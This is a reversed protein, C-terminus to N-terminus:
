EPLEFHFEPCITGWRACVEQHQARMAEKTAETRTCELDTFRTVHGSNEARFVM